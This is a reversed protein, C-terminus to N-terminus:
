YIFPILAKTKKKYSAYDNAFHTSLLKEEKTMKFILFASIVILFVADPISPEAIFSGIAM